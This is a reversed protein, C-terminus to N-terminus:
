STRPRGCKRKLRRLPAVPNAISAARLKLGFWRGRSTVSVVWGHDEIWPYGEIGPGRVDLQYSGDPQGDFHVRGSSGTIATKVSRRSDLATLNVSVNPIGKRNEGTIDVEVAKAATLQQSSSDPPPVDQAAVPILRIAMAM